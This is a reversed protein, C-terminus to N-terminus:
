TRHDATARVEILVPNAALEKLVSFVGCEIAEGTPHLIRDTQLHKRRKSRSARTQSRAMALVKRSSAKHEKAQRLAGAM